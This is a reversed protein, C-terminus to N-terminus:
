GSLKQAQREALVSEKQHLLVLGTTVLDRSRLELSKALCTSNQVM